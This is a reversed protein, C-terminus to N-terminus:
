EKQSRIKSNTVTAGLYVKNRSHAGFAPIAVAQPEQARHSIYALTDGTSIRHGLPAKKTHQQQITQPGKIPDQLGNGSPGSGPQVGPRDGKGCDTGRARHVAKLTEEM